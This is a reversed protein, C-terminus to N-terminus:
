YIWLMQLMRPHARMWHAVTNRQDQLSALRVHCIKREPVLGLTDMSKCLSPLVCACAHAHFMTICATQEEANIAVAQRDVLM